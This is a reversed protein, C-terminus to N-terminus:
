TDCRCLLASAALADAEMRQLGDGALCEDHRQQTLENTDHYEGEQAACDAVLHSRQGRSGAQVAPCHSREALM